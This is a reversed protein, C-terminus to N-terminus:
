SHKLPKWFSLHLPLTQKAKSPSYWSLSLLLSYTPSLNSRNGLFIAEQDIGPPGVLGPVQLALHCRPGRLDSALCLVFVVNVGSSM